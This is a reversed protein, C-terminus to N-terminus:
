RALPALQQAAVRALATRVDEQTYVDGTPRRTPRLSRRHPAPLGMATALDCVECWSFEAQQRLREGAQTPTLM